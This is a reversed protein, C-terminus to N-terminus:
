QISNNTWTESAIRSYTAVPSYRVPCQAMADVVCGQEAVSAASQRAYLATCEAQLVRLEAPSLFSPLRVWGRSAFRHLLTATDSPLRGRSASRSPKISM